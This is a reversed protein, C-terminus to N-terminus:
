LRLYRFMAVAILAAGAYGLAAVPGHEMFVYVGILVIGALVMVDDFDM